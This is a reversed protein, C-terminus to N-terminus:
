ESKGQRMMEGCGAEFLPKLLPIDRVPLLEKRLVVRDELRRNIQNKGKMYLTTLRLHVPPATGALLLSISRPRAFDDPEKM